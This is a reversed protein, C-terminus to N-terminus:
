YGITAQYTVGNKFLVNIDYVPTPQNPANPRRLVTLSAFFQSFYNVIFGVFYDPAQQQLISSKAPIGFNAWFPSENYNLLLCQCLAVVYVYSSDGNADTEITVWHRNGYEDKPTRGYIRM